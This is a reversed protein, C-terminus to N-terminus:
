FSIHTITIYLNLTPWALIKQSKKAEVTPKQCFETSNEALGTSIRHGFKWFFDALNDAFEASLETLEVSNWIELIKNNMECM